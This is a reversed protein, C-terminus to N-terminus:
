RRAQMESPATYLAFRMCEPEQGSDSSSTYVAGATGYVAEDVRLKKFEQPERGLRAAILSQTSHRSFVSKTCRELNRADVGIGQSAAGAALTCAGQPEPRLGAASRWPRSKPVASFAAMSM